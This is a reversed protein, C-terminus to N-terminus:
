LVVNLSHIHVCSACVGCLAVHGCISESVLCGVSFGHSRLMYVLYVWVPHSFLHVLRILPRSLHVLELVSLFNLMSVIKVFVCVMMKSKKFFYEHCCHVLSIYKNWCLLKSSQICYLNVQVVVVFLILDQYIPINERQRQACVCVRVCACKVILCYLSSAIGSFFNSKSSCKWWLFNGYTVPWSWRWKVKGRTM